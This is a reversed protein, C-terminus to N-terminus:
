LEIQFDLAVVDFLKSDKFYRCCISIAKKPSFTIFKSLDFSAWFTEMEKPEKM